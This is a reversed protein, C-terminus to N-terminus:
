DVTIEQSLALDKARVTVRHRGQPLRGKHLQRVLDTASAKGEEIYLLRGAEDRIEIVLKGIRKNHQLEIRVFASESTCVVRLGHPRDGKAMAAHAAASLLLALLAVPLHRALGPSSLTRRAFPGSAPRPM